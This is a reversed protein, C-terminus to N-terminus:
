KVLASIWADYGRSTFPTGAVDTMGSFLTLLYVSGDPAVAVEEALDYDAGGLGVAWEHTPTPGPSMRTVFTNTAGSLTTTGFTVTSAFTGAFLVAGDPTTDVGYALDFGADGYRFSWQHAGTASFRAAVADFGGRSTLSAGSGALNMSGQFSGALVWGGGPYSAVGHFTANNNAVFDGFARAWNCTLSTASLELLLADSGTGSPTVSCPSELTLAARTQGAIALNAGNVAVDLLDINGPLHKLALAAGNTISARVVFGHNTAGAIQFSDFTSPNSSTNGVVYLDDGSVALAEPIDQAGGGWQKAWVVAGDAAALRLVVINGFLDGTVANPTAGYTVPDGVGQLRAALYVNGAADTALGGLSEGGGDTILHQKWLIRGDKRAYKIVYLNTGAGDDVAGAAIVDGAADVVLEDMLDDGSFSIHAAWRKSGHAAFSATVSKPGDMTLQCLADGECDGSWGTFAFGAQATPTLTVSSGGDLQATCRAGCDIGGPSSRVLGAGDLTVTLAQPEDPDGGPEAAPVDGCGLLFMAFLVSLRMM